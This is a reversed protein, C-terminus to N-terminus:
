VEYVVIFSVLRAVVWLPVNFGDDFVVPGVDDGRANLLGLFRLWVCVGVEFGAIEFDLGECPGPDHVVKGVDGGFGSFGEIEKMEGVIGWLQHFVGVIYGAAPLFSCPLADEVLLSRQKDIADQALHELHM